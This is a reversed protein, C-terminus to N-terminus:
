GGALQKMLTEADAKGDFPRTAKLAEELSHRAEPV